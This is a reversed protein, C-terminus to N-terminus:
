KGYWWNLLLMILTVAGGKILFKFMMLNFATNARREQMIRVREEPPSDWYGDSTKSWVHRMVWLGAPLGILIGIFYALIEM